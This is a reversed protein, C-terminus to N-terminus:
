PQPVAWYPRSYPPSFDTATMYGTWTVFLPGAPGGYVITGGATPTLAGVPAWTNTTTNLKEDGTVTLTNTKGIGVWIGSGSRYVLWDYFQLNINMEIPLDPGSATNASPAPLKPQDVPATPNQSWAAVSVTGGPNVPDSTWAYALWGASTPTTFQPNNDLVFGGTTLTHPGTSQNTVTLTASAMQIFVYNGSETATNPLTVESGLSFGNSGSTGQLTFGPHNAGDVNTQWVLPYSDILLKNVTVTPAVVTFTVTNSTGGGTFPAAYTVTATVTHAGATANWYFKIASSGTGSTGPTPNPLDTTTGTQNTYSQSTEAGSINWTVTQFTAVGPATVSASVAAGVVNGGSVGLIPNGPNGSGGSGGSDMPSLTTSGGQRSTLPAVSMPRIGGAVPTSATIAAAPGTMPTAANAPTASSRPPVNLAIGGAGPSALSPTESRPKAVPVAVTSPKAPTSVSLLGGAHVQTLGLHVAVSAVFSSGGVGAGGATVDKTHTQFVAKAPPSPTPSVGPIPVRGARSEPVSVSPSDGRGGKGTEGHATAPMGLM